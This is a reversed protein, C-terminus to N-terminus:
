KTIKILMENTKPYNNLEYLGIAINPNSYKLDTDMYHQLNYHYDLSESKTGNFPLNIIEEDNSSKIFQEIKPLVYDKFKNM